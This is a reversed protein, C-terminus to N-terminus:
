PLPQAAESKLARHGPTQPRPCGAFPFPQRHHSLALGAQRVSGESRILCCQSHSVDCKKEDM